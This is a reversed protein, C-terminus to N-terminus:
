GHASGAGEDGAPSGGSRLSSAAAQAKDLNTRVAGFGALLADVADTLATVVGDPDGPGPVTLAGAAHQTQVAARLRTVAEPVQDLMRTLGSLTRYITEVDLPRDDAQVLQVIARVSQEAETALQPATRGDQRPQEDNLARPM